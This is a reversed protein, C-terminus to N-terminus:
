LSHHCFLRVSGLPLFVVLGPELLPNFWVLILTIWLRGGASTGASTGPCDHRPNLATWREDRGRGKKKQWRGNAVRGLFSKKSGQAM